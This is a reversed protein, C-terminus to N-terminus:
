EFLSRGPMVAIAATRAREAVGANACSTVGAGAVCDTVSVAGVSCAAGAGTVLVGSVVTVVVVVVTSGASVAVAASGSM